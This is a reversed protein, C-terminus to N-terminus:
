IPHAGAQLPLHRLQRQQLPGQMHRGGLGLLTYTIMFVTYFEEGVSNKLIEKEGSSIRGFLSLIM